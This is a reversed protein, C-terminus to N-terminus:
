QTPNYLNEETEIDCLERLNDDKWLRRCLERENPIQQLHKVILAIFIGMPKRPPRGPSDEKHYAGMVANEIDELNLKSLIGCSFEPEDLRAIHNRTSKGFAPKGWVIDGFDDCDFFGEFVLKVNVEEGPFTM